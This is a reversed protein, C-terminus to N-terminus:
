EVNIDSRCCDAIKLYTRIVRLRHALQDLLTADIRHDRMRRRAFQESLPAIAMWRRHEYDDGALTILPFSEVCEVGAGSGGQRGPASLVSTAV